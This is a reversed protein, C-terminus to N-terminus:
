VQTRIQNREIKKLANTDKAETMPVHWNGQRIWEDMFYIRWTCIRTPETNTRLTLATKEFRMM